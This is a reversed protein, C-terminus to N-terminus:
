SKEAPEISSSNADGSTLRNELRPLNQRLWDDSYLRSLYKDGADPVIAVILDDNAKEQAMRVAVSVIMGSSIGCFIGEERALRRAMLFSEEDNVSVVRDVVGADFADPIFPENQGAAEVLYPSPEDIKGTEFYTKYISGVPDALVIEIDSNREKLYKGAGSITGGTGASSVFATVKGETQAWIEPGTTLYHAKPNAPNFSQNAFIANDSEKAIREATNLYHEPSNLPADFPVRVVKAGFAKLTEIKEHSVTDTCVIVVRYDRAAALMAIAYGTNGSSAEVITGGPRLLGNNEAADIMAVAARDKISGGPNFYELKVAVAASNSGIVKKLKVLPTSGITELIGDHINM